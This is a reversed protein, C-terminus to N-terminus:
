SRRTASDAVPELADPSGRPADAPEAAAQSPRVPAPEDGEPPAGELVDSVAEVLARGSLEAATVEAAALEGKTREDFTRATELLLQMVNLRVHHEVLIQAGEQFRFVCHRTSLMRHFLRQAQITLADLLQEESIRQERYLAIGLMEATQAGKLFTALDEASLAGAEVLIEGLREGEPTRDSTAHVLVGDRIQLLFIEGPAHVWLAGTKRANSLFGILEPIAITWSNGQLGEDGKEQARRDPGRLSRKLRGFFGGESAPSATGGAQAREGAARVSQELVQLAQSLQRYLFPAAQRDPASGLGDLRQALERCEAVLSALKRLQSEPEAERTPSM